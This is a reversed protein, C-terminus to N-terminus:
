EGGEEDDQIITIIAGSKNLINIVDFYRSYPVSKETQLVVVREDDSAKEPYHQETLWERLDGRSVAKEKEEGSSLQIQFSTLLITTTEGENKTDESETASPLDLPQGMPKNFTAAVIFFIILQFAIDSFAGMNIECSRKKSGLRKRQM